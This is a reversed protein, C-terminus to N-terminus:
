RHYVLANQDFLQRKDKWDMAVVVLRDNGHEGYVMNLGLGAGELELIHSWRVVVSCLYASSSHLPEFNMLTM